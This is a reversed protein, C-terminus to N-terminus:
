FFLLIRYLLHELSTVPLIEDFTSRRTRTTTHLLQVEQPAKVKHVETVAWESFVLVSLGDPSGTSFELQLLQLNQAM